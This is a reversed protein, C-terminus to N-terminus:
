SEGLPKYECGIYGQYNHNELTRFLYSYNLEGASDPENRGPVQAVQVHGSFCSLVEKWVTSNLELLGLVSSTIPSLTQGICHLHKKFYNELKEKTIFSGSM